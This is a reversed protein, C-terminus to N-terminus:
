LGEIAKILQEIAFVMGERKPYSHKDNVPKPMLKRAAEIVEAKVMAREDSRIDAEHASGIMTIDSDKYGYHERVLTIIEITMDVPLDFEQSIDVVIDEIDSM